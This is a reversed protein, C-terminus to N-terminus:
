NQTLYGLPIFDYTAFCMREKKLYKCYTSVFIFSNDCLLHGNDYANKFTHTNPLQDMPKNLYEYSVFSNDCFIDGNNNMKGIHITM